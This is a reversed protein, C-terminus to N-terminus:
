AFHKELYVAEEDIGLRKYLKISKKNNMNVSLSVEAINSVKANELVFKILQTGIGKGRCKRTVFLEEMYCCHAAHWLDMRLSYCLLGIINKDEEALVITRISSELYTDVFALTINSTGNAEAICEKMLRLIERDDKTEAKRINVIM